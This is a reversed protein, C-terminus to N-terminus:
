QPYNDGIATQRHQYWGKLERTRHDFVLLHYIISILFHPRSGVTRGLFRLLVLCLPALEEM